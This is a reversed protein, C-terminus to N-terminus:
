GTEGAPRGELEAVLAEARQAYQAHGIKAFVQAAERAHPLAREREGQRQYLLALNFSGNALGVADGIERAVALRQELYGAARRADGLQLYANGLNGLANGEGRRDGIERHSPWHTSTTASPGGPTAWTPPLCQGPQGPCQGRGAPRRDRPRHGAGARLLEIARRADGLDAYANGLNGLANGEGRRDGIERAIALAQEYYGIARRRTAWTSPLRHGPQGPRAGEGRRDGIERDIALAQEHLEIARRPTAWTPTPM